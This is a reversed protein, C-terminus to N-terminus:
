QDSIVARQELTNKLSLCGQEPIFPFFSKSRAIDQVLWFNKKLQIKVLATGKSAIISV